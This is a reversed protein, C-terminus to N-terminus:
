DEPSTAAQAGRDLLSRDRISSSPRDAVGASERLREVIRLRDATSENTIRENVGELAKRISEWDDRNLWRYFSSEKAGSVSKLVERFLDANSVRRPRAGDKGQRVIDTLAGFAVRRVLDRRDKQSQSRDADSPSTAGGGAEEPKAERRPSRVSSETASDAKFNISNFIGAADSFGLPLLIAAEARITESARRVGLDPLEVKICDIILEVYDPVDEAELSLKLLRKSHAVPDLIQAHFEVPSSKPRNGFSWLRCWQAWQRLARARQRMRALIGQGLRARLTDDLTGNKFRRQVALGVAALRRGFDVARRARMGSLQSMEFMLCATPDHKEAVVFPHRELRYLLNLVHFLLFGRIEVLLLNALLYVANRYDEHLAARMPDPDFASGIAVGGDADTGQQEAM